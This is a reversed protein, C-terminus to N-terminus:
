PHRELLGSWDGPLYAAVHAKEIGLHRMLEIVREEVPLSEQQVVANRWQTISPLTLPNAPRYCTWPIGASCATDFSM